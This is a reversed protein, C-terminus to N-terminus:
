LGLWDRIKELINGSVKRDFVATEVLIPEHPTMSVIIKGRLGNWYLGLNHGVDVFGDKKSGLIDEVEKETMGKKIRDCNAQTIRDRPLLVLVASGIVLPAVLLCVWALKRKM